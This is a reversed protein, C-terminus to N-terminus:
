NPLVERIHRRAYPDAPARSVLRVQSDERESPRTMLWTTWGLRSIGLQTPETQRARLTLRFGFDADPGAYFRTLECLPEFGSGCPLLNLFADLKMPGLHVAFRGQQDWVRTGLIAGQGLAQNRGRRGIMTWEGEDLNRWQGLLQEVRAPVGLYDSLLRELGSASRPQQALLGAYFIFARDPVRMRDHVEELAMGFFAYLYSAIPGKHPERSTYAPHHLKRTRVLLGLLRHHFMDLFDRMAFDKRWAQEIVREGDPAPLPGASGGLPFLNATLVAQGYEGTEIHQLESAPTIQSILSRFHIAEDLPNAAEGAPARAYLLRELIRVAQFFEFEWPEAYLWEEVSAEQKWGFRSV